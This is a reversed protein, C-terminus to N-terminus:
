VGQTMLVTSWQRFASRDAGRSYDYRGGSRHIHRTCREHIETMVDQLAQDVHQRSWPKGTTNQARELGSVAVGGANAAKGPAIVLGADKCYETAQDTLPMNAGEVIVRCPGQSLAKADEHDLENQTACPMAIDCPLSWPTQGKHFTANKLELQELRNHKTRELDEPSLGKPSHLTGVSNSLSIVKAGLALAKEAAHTAVNGAGSIAVAKGELDDHHDDLVHRLFYVCGYGTAEDRGQSGGACVWKGTLTGDFRGTVQSFTKQLTSIMGADVGIDGAPIDTYQGIYKHLETMFATCVREQEGMSLERPDIDMGGKAGGLFLGTLINKATQEFALFKLVSANVHPHFRLGGKYPGITQSHQVRWARNLRARGRDDRWVVKFSIIRDPTIMREILGDKLHDDDLDDKIHDFWALVAQHYEPQDPAHHELFSRLDWVTRIM